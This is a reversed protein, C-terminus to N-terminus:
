KVEKRNISDIWITGCLYFEVAYVIGKKDTAKYGNIGGCTTKACYSSKPM